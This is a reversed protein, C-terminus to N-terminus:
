DSEEVGAERGQLLSEGIFIRGQEVGGGGAPEIRGALGQLNEARSLCSQGDGIMEQLEQGLDEQLVAGAEGRSRPSRRSRWGVTLLAVTLVLGAM